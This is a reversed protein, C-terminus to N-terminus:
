DELYMARVLAASADIRLERFAYARARSKFDPDDEAPPPRDDREILASRVTRYLRQPLKDARDGFPMEATLGDRSVFVVYNVVPPTNEHNLGFPANQQPLLLTM